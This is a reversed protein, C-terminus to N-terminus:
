RPALVDNNGMEPVPVDEMWLGAEAKRKVLARMTNM